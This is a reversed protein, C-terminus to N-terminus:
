GKRLGNNISKSRIKLKMMAEIKRKEIEGKTRLVTAESKNIKYDVNLDIKSNNHVNLPNTLSYKNDDRKYNRSTYTNVDTKNKKLHSLNSNFSNTSSFPKVVNLNKKNNLDNNECTMNKGNKDCVSEELVTQTSFSKTELSSISVNAFSSVSSISISVNSFSSISTTQADHSSTSTHTSSSECNNSSNKSTTTNHPPPNSGQKSIYDVASQFM